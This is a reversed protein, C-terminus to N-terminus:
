GMHRPEVIYGADHFEEEEIDYIRYYNSEWEGNNMDEIEYQQVAEKAKDLTDFTDLVDGTETLEIQYKNKM